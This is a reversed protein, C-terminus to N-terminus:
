CTESLVWDRRYAEMVAVFSSKVFSSLDAVDTGKKKPHVQISDSEFAELFVRGGTSSEAFWSTAM